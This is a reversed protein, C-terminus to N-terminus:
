RAVWHYGDFYRVQPIQHFLSQKPYKKGLDKLVKLAKNKNPYRGFVVHTLPESIYDRDNEFEIVEDGEKKLIAITKKIGKHNREKLAILQLSYFPKFNNYYKIKKTIIVKEKHREKTTIKKTITKMWKPKGITNCKKVTQKYKEIRFIPSKGKKVFLEGIENAYEQTPFCGMDYNITFNYASYIPHYNYHSVDIVDISTTLVGGLDNITSSVIIDDKGDENVDSIKKVLLSYSDILKILKTNDFFAFGRYYEHSPGNDCVTYNMIYQDEKSDNFNGKVTDNYFFGCSTKNGYTENIYFAVKKKMIDLKYKKIRADNNRYYDNSKYLLVNNGTSKLQAPFTVVLCAIIMMNIKM